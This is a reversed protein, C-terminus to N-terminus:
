SVWLLAIKSVTWGKELKSLLIYCGTGCLPGCGHEVYVLAESRGPDFAVRSLRIYGTSDPYKKYFEDWGKNLDGKFFEDLDNDQLFSYKVKLDLRGEISQPNRNHEKFADVTSTSVPSLMGMIDERDLETALSPNAATREMILLSKTTFTIYKENLLAAYVANEDEGSDVSVIVTARTQTVPICTLILLTLLRIM